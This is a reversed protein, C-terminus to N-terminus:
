KAETLVVPSTKTPNTATLATTFGGGAQEVFLSHAFSPIEKPVTNDDIHETMKKWFKSALKIAISISKIDLYESKISHEVRNTNVSNQSFLAMHQFFQHLKGMFLMPQHQHALSQSNCAHWHTYKKNEIFRIIKWSYQYLFPKGAAINIIALQIDCIKACTM